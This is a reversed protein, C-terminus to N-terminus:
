VLGMGESDEYRKPPHLGRGFGSYGGWQRFSFGLFRGQRAQSKAVRSPELLPTFELVLDLFHGTFIQQKEKIFGISGEQWMARGGSEREVVDDQAMELMLDYDYLLRKLRRTLSGNLSLWDGHGSVMLLVTALRSM